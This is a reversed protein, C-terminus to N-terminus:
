LWSRDYMRKLAQKGLQYVKTAKKLSIDEHDRQPIGYDTVDLLYRAVEEDDLLLSLNRVTIPSSSDSHERQEELLELYKREAEEKDGYIQLMLSENHKSTLYCGYDGQRRPDFKRMLQLFRDVNKAEDLILSTLFCVDLYHLHQHSTESLSCTEIQRRAEVLLEHVLKQKGSEAVNYERSEMAGSYSGYRYMDTYTNNFCSIVLSSEILVTPLLPGLDGLAEPTNSALEQFERAKNLAFDQMWRNDGFRSCIRMLLYDSVLVAPRLSERNAIDNMTNYLYYAGLPCRRLEHYEGVLKLIWVLDVPKLLRDVTLAAETVRLVHKILGEWNDISDLHSQKAIACIYDLSYGVDLPRKRLKLVEASFRVHQYRATYQHIIEPDVILWKRRTEDYSFVNVDIERVFEPSLSHKRFRAPRYRYRFLRESTSVFILHRHKIPHQLEKIDYESTLIRKTFLDVISSRGIGNAFNAMFISTNSNSVNSIHNIAEVFTGHLPKPNCQPVFVCDVKGGEIYPILPELNSTHNYEKGIFSFCIPVAFSLAQGIKFIYLHRARYIERHPKTEKIAPLTKFQSFISLDGDRHKALILALNLYMRKSNIDESIEESIAGIRRIQGLEPLGLQSLPIIYVKNSEKSQSITRRVESLWDVPLYYEPFVLLDGQCRHFAELTEQFQKINFSSNLFGEVLSVNLQAMFVTITPGISVNDIQQCIVEM